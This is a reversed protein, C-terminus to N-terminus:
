CSKPRWVILDIGIEEKKVQKESDDLEGQFMLPLVFGSLAITSVTFFAVGAAISLSIPFAAM